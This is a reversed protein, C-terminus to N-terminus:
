SVSKQGKSKQDESGYSKLLKLNKRKIWCIKNKSKEVHNM